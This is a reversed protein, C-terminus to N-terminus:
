SNTKLYEGKSAELDDVTTAPAVSSSYGGTLNLTAKVIPGLAGVAKNPNRTVLKLIQPKDNLSAELMAAKITHGKSLHHTMMPNFHLFISDSNVVSTGRQAPIYTLGSQGSQLEGKLLIGGASLEVEDGTYYNKMECTDILQQFDVFDFDAFGRLMQETLMRKATAFKWVSGEILTCTEPNKPIFAASVLTKAEASTTNFMVDPLMHQEGILKGVGYQESWNISREEVRGQLIIFCGSSREDEEFLFDGPQYLKQSAFSFIRHKASKSLDSTLTSKALVEELGPMKPKGSLNLKKMSFDIAEIILNREKGDVVGEEFCEEATKRQFYLLAYAAKKTQVHSIVEPFNDNIQTEIFDKAKKVQEKHEDFILDMTEDDADFCMTEILDKAEKHCHIFTSAVDYAITLHEYFFNHFLKGICPFKSLKQLMKIFFDGYVSDKAHKWDDMPKSYCDLSMNTTGILIIASAGFCQGKEFEHWYLGKLTTLYRRRMECELDERTFELRNFFDELLKKSSTQAIEKLLKRGTSTNKMVMTLLNIPGAVNEVENWDALQQRRKAIKQQQGTEELISSTVQILMHEQVSSLSSLGLYRVVFLVIISDFGVSLACIGVSFFLCIVRFDKSVDENRYVILGLAIAITGKLAGVTLVIAEKWNLGYGFRKLIPYHIMIVIGRVIHLIVFLSVMLGGDNFTIEDTYIYKGLLVGALVFVIAEINKGIITWFSHVTHEVSPSILTKGYASMYLGFTVTAIAGSVHLVTAEATYFVLYATILTLNTELLMDNAIRKLIKTMVIGFALGLTLGGFTLRFFLGASIQDVDHGTINDLMLFFIVMVTGENLLTEGQILTELRHEANVEKLQSVVAVHDTASLIAGLLVAESWTFDYGLIYIIAVATLVSSVLVASTALFMIQGLERKFTYWDTTFATEFILAPLLILLVPWQDMNDWLTVAGEIAGIYVGVTRLFLGGLLLMLSSPVKVAKRVEYVLIVCLMTLLVFLVVDGTTGAGKSM